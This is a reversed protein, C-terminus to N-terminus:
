RRAGDCIPCPPDYEGHPRDHCVPACQCGATDHGCGLCVVERIKAMVAQRDEVPLRTFIAALSELGIAAGHGLEDHLHVDGNFSLGDEYWRRGEAKFFDKDTPHTEISLLVAPFETVGDILCLMSLVVGEAREIRDQMPTLAPMTPPRVRALDAGAWYRAIMRAHDLFHARTEEATYPTLNDAIPTATKTM